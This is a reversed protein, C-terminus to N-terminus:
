QQYLECHFETLLNSCYHLVHQYFYSKLTNFDDSFTDQEALYLTSWGLLLEFLVDKSGNM